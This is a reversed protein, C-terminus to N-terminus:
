LRGNKDEVYKRWLSKTKKTIDSDDKIAKERFLEFMEEDEENNLKIFVNKM